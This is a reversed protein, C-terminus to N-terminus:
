QVNVELIQGIETITTAKKVARQKTKEEFYVARTAMGIAAAVEMAEAPTVTHEEDEVDTLTVTAENLYQALTVASQIAGASSWGGTYTGYPTVVPTISLLDYRDKLTRKATKKADKLAKDAKEAEWTPVEAIGTGNWQYREPESMFWACQSPHLDVAFEGTQPERNCGTGRNTTSNFILKWM